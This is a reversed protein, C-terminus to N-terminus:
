ISCLFWVFMMFMGTWLFIFLYGLWKKILDMKTGIYRKRKDFWM